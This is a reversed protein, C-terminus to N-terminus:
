KQPAMKMFKMPPQKKKSYSPKYAMGKKKKGKGKKKKFKSYIPQQKEVEELLIQEKM